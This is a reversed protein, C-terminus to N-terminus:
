GPGAAPARGVAAGRCPSTTAIASPLTVTVARSPDSALKTRPGLVVTAFCSGM